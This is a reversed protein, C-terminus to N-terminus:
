KAVSMSLHDTLATLSECLIQQDDSSLQMAGLRLATAWDDMPSSTVRQLGKKTASLRIVRRDHRAERRRIYRNKTLQKLVESVTPRSVGFMKSLETPRIETTNTAIANLINRQLPGDGAYGLRRWPRSKTKFVILALAEVIRESVPPLPSLARKHPAHASSLPQKESTRRRRERSRVTM